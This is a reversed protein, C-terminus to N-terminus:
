MIIMFKFKNINLTIETGAVAVDENDEALDVFEETTLESTTEEMKLFTRRFYIAKLAAIIEQDLPQILSTTRPPLFVVKVNPHRDVLFASHSSANDLLLICKFDINSKKCLARVEPVFMTDFWDNMITATMWAKKNSRWHVGRRDSPINKYPRPNQATHLVLPKLKCSGSANCGLLLTLRNRLPKIGRAHKTQKSIYTSNPMMKWYLATEDANFIQDRTYGGEQIIEKLIAPYAEAASTDASLQEGKMKKHKFNHRKFFAQAWGRSAKFPTPTTMGTKRAVVAHFEKAKECCM